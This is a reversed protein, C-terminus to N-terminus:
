AIRRRFNPIRGFLLFGSFIFFLFNIPFIKIFPLNFSGLFVAWLFALLAYAGSSLSGVGGVRRIVFISTVVPASILFFYLFVGVLGFNLMVYLPATEADMAASAGFVYELVALGQLNYFSAAHGEISGAKELMYAAYFNNVADFFWLYSAFLIVLFFILLVRGKYGSDFFLGVGILIVALAGGTLSQTALLMIFACLFLLYNKNRQFFAMFMVCVISFSNPDDLFSGFRVSSSGEYALAPLRGYKYFAFIQFVDVVLSVFFLTRLFKEFAEMKFDRVSLSFGLGFLIVFAIQLYDIAGVLFYRLLMLMCFFLSAAFYLLAYSSLTRLRIAGFCLMSLFLLGLYKGVQLFVPTDSYTPSTQSSNIQLPYRYSLYLVSFWITIWVINEIKLSAKMNCM